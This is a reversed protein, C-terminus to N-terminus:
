NMDISKLINIGEVPEDNKTLLNGDTSLVKKEINDSKKIKEPSLHM